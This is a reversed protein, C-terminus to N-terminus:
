KKWFSDNDVLVEVVDDNQIIRNVYASPRKVKDYSRRTGNQYVVIVTAGGPKLSLSNLRFEDAVKLTRKM